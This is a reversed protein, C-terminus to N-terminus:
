FMYAVNVSGGFAGGRHFLDLISESVVYKEVGYPVAGYVVYVQGKLSLVPM